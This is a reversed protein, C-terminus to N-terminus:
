MIRWSDSWDIILFNGHHAETLIYACLVFYFPGCQKKLAACAKPMTATNTVRRPIHGNRNQVTHKNESPLEGRFSKSLQNTQNMFSWTFTSVYLIHIHYLTADYQLARTIQLTYSTNLSVILTYLLTYSHSVHPIPSSYFLKRLEAPSCPHVLTYTLVNQTMVRCGPRGLARSCWWWFSWSM